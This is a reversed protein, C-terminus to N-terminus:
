VPDYLQPTVFGSTKFKEYVSRPMLNLPLKDVREEQALERARREVMAAHGELMAETERM